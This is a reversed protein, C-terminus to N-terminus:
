LSKKWVRKERENWELKKPISPTPSLPRDIMVVYMYTANHYNEMWKVLSVEQVLAKADADVTYTKEDM